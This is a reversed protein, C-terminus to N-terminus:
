NFVERVHIIRRSEAPFIGFTARASPDGQRAAQKDCTVLARMWALGAGKSAPKTGLCSTDVTTKGLNIAVEISGPQSSTLPLVGAGRTLKVPQQIAPPTTGTSATQAFAAAPIVTFGDQDNLVWSRGSWYEVTVPMEIPSTGTRGFRSGIRMRGTRIWPRAQETGPLGTGVPATASTIFLTTDTQGNDARLRIQLPAQQANTFAYAPQPIPGDTLPTVGSSFGNAAYTGGLTGPATTFATGNEQLASFKITQGAGFGKPYNKTPEGKRNIATLRLMIPEGAYYFNAEKRAADNLEVQFAWPVFPGVKATCAGNVLGGTTSSTDIASGLFDNRAAVLDLYGAENFNMTATATGQTFEVSVPPLIGPLGGGICDPGLTTLTANKGLVTDANLGAAHFNPTIGFKSNEAVLKVNFDAGARLSTPYEFKFHDPAVIFEKKGTIKDLKANLAVKGADPYALTLKGIGNQDFSTLLTTTDAANCSFSQTNLSMKLTGSTPLVYNCSYEVNKDVSNLAPVCETAAANPKRAQITAVIDNGAKHDPVTIEFNVDGTFNMDCSSTRTASNYCQVPASTGTLALKTPGTAISTVTATTTGTSGIAVPADGPQLTASAGGSFHPANCGANACATVTVRESTCTGASGDHTILLYQLTSAAPKAAECTPGRASNVPNGSQNDVCDCEGARTGKKCIIKKAVRGNWMLTAFDVAANGTILADAAQLTLQGTDVNGDITGGSGLVLSTSATVDGTIKVPTGITITTGTVPGTITTNSGITVAGTSVLTGTIQLTSGSGLVLSAASIDAKFTQVQNGATFTKASSFSGGTVNLNSPPLDAISLNGTSTLRATGSMTLGQNFGFTFDSRVSVTYGTDIIIKDDWAIGASSPCTYVKGSLSCGPITAGGFRYTTGAQAASAALLLGFLVLATRLIPSFASTFYM